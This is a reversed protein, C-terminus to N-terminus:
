AESTRATSSLGFCPSTCVLSPLPAGMARPDSGKEQIASRAADQRDQLWQRELPTLFAATRPTEALQAQSVGDRMTVARASSVKEIILVPLYPSRCLRSGAPGAIRNVTTTPM